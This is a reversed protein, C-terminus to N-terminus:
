NAMEPRVDKAFVPVDLRDDLARSRQCRGRDALDHEVLADGRADAVHIPALRQPMALDIRPLRDILDAVVIERREELLRPLRHQGIEAAVWPPSEGTVSPAGHVSSASPRARAASGRDLDAGEALM